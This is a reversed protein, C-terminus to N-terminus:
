RIFRKYLFRSIIEILFLPAKRYLILISKPLRSKLRLPKEDSFLNVPYCRGGIRKKFNFQSSNNSARGINLYNIRSDDCCFKILQRYMFLNSSQKNDSAAWILHLVDNVIISLSVSRCNNKSDIVKSFFVKESDILSYFFNRPMPLTGIERMRKIYVSYFLNIEDFKPNSNIFYSFPYKINM